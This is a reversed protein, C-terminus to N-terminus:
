RSREKLLDKMTKEKNEAPKNLAKKVVKKVVFTGLYGAASWFLFSKIKGM